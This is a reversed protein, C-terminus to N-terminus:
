NSTVPIEFERVRSRKMFPDSTVIGEVLASFRNGRQKMLVLAQDVACKDYYELGRGLAYTLLREAFARHFQEQRQRIIGILEIPGSFKEGSPLEGTSDVSKEGEKDRWRGIADFNELGMGIPDMTKHCSACSPDKRHIEMRERLSLNSVDKAADELPPVGPPAPPPAEGLINEMIWKGRKVPSTRGPNSTLTLISAQTLIGVRKTGELSVRVFEEGSVGAIGYHKALRENLFTFDANLFDDISRDEKVITSFLMETEQSMASRLAADFDPFVEPNPQVDALNRLNLWQSAFNRGLASAKGDHLMREIQAQLIAPDFLRKNEALQFLEDDPMSSWLFYSLRSAFEYENLKREDANGEPDAEKRFLFDPSVLAAQLAVYLGYEYTEKFESVNRDVLEAYRAVEIDTVPRRFARYLIPRLIQAAADKVSVKDSPRVTVFRRHTEHWEPAGGGEPGIVEISQIALNRDRRKEDAAKPDYFDNIFAGAIDHNGSSLTVDQEFWAPKRHGKVEFEHVDKGDIRLAMKADDDGAQTASAHIRIKYKGNAPASVTATLSGTSALVHFGNGDVNGGNSSKMKDAAFRQTTGKSFDRTDIVTAAIQEAADLYKEMLLPPVSLVDGINDFGEGVDDQPFSDAPTLSIGFLDRITNNYEARNLRHLAPRGAHHIQTCDFNYLEDYFIEAVEKRSEDTPQSDYDSPPMAGANIMRYVREWTKREKLLQDVTALQHVTVGGEQTDASHCDACHSKLFPLIKDELKQQRIANKRLTAGSVASTPRAAALSATNNAIGGPLLPSDASSASADISGATQDDDTEDITRVAVAAGAQNWYWYGSATIGGLLLTAAFAIVFPASSSRTDYRDSSALKRHRRNSTVPGVSGPRSSVSSSVEPEVSARGKRSGRATQSPATTTRTPRGAKAVAPASVPQPTESLAASAELLMPQRCQSNPCRIRRGLFREEVRFRFKCSGCRFSPNM